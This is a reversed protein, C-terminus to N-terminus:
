PPPPVSRGMVVAVLFLALFIVFLIWAIEKALWAVPWIGLLGAILAIVLFLLAWRLMTKGGFFLDM